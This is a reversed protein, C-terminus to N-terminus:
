WESFREIIEKHGEYTGGLKSLHYVYRSIIDTEIHMYDGIKKNKLNTENFTHPIVTVKFSSSLIDSVTLSIGDLSVSGKNVIFYKLNKPYLFEIFTDDRIRDMSIIKAKGDVHGQVIHGGLRSSFTLARELNVEEQIMIEGHNFRSHEKTTKSIYFSLYKPYIDTITLCLGNVAISDGIKSGEIVKKCYIHLRSTELQKVKGTEEIIGTFM